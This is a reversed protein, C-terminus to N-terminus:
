RLEALVRQRRKTVVHNEGWQQASIAVARELPEIAEDRRNQRLLSLGLGSHLAASVSDHAGRTDIELADRFLREAEGLRGRRLELQAVNNQARLRAPDTPDLQVRREERIAELTQAADGCPESLALVIALNHRITSELRPDTAHALAVRLLEAAQDLNGLAARIMALENQQVVVERTLEVGTNSYLEIGMHLQSAARDLEGLALYAAGLRFRIQAVATPQHRVRELDAELEAFIQDIPKPEDSPSANPPALVAGAMFDEPPGDLLLEVEVRVATPVKHNDFYRARDDLDLDAVAEFYERVLSVPSKTM